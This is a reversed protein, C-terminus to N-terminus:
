SAKARYAFDDKRRSAEKRPTTHALERGRDDLKPSLSQSSPWPEVEDIVQRVASRLSRVLWIMEVHNITGLTAAPDAASIEVRGDGHQQVVVSCLLVSGSEAEAEIAKRAWQPICASLILYPRFSIALHRMMAERVDIEALVAFHHRKLAKKTRKVADEFSVEAFNSFYEM